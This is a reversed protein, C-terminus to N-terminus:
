GEDALGTGTALGTATALGTTADADADAAAVTVTVATFLLAGDSVEELPGATLVGATSEPPSTRSPSASTVFTSLSVWCIVIAVLLVVVVVVVVVVVMAEVMVVFGGDGAGVDEEAGLAASNNDEWGNHAMKRPTILRKSPPQRGSTCPFFRLSPFLSSPTPAPVPTASSSFPFPFSLIFPPALIMDLVVVVVWEEEEEDEDDDKLLSTSMATFRTSSIIWALVCRVVVVAMEVSVAPAPLRTFPVSPSSTPIPPPSPPPSDLPYVMVVVVDDDVDNNIVLDRTEEVGVM